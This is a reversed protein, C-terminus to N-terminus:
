TQKLGLNTLTDTLWALEAALGGVLDAPMGGPLVSWTYTEVELHDTVPQAGGVLAAVTQRLQPWTARLPPAPDAHVPVHFHVRWPHRGSLGGALADPLDDVAAPATGAPADPAPAERTQHLYRPEAFSALAARTAPDAPHEAHVAASIQAKVVSLGAAAARDLVHAPNEFGTALHCADLCLGIWAPDVDVPTLGVPVSGSPTAPDPPATTLATAADEARDIVCGPEPELALRITRGTITRLAALGDAVHRLHRAAQAAHRPSWPDRWALPLTSISGRTTDDPLLHALIRACALTYAARRPDTWDPHYVAKKVADAHFDGYPFANLTVVELGRDRLARVLHDRAAGDTDLTTAVDHALWLGLGLRDAGLRQRVPVAYRDLQDLVGDLTAAPHVNTCYATHVVAGGPHRFRM